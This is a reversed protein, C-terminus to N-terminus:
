ENNISPSYKLIDSINILIRDIMSRSIGTIRSIARNSITCKKRELNKCAKKYKEISYSKSCELVVKRSESINENNLLTEVSLKRVFYKDRQNRVELIKKANSSTAYELNIKSIYYRLLNEQIEIYEAIKTIMQEDLIYAIKCSLIFIAKRYNRKSQLSGTELLWKSLKEKMNDEEYNANHVREDVTKEIKNYHFMSNDEDINKTNENNTVENLITKEIADKLYLKRLFDRSHNKLCRCVFTFFSSKEKDYKALINEIAKPYLTSQFDHVLEEKMTIGFKQPHYYILIFLKDICKEKDNKTVYLTFLNNVMDSINNYQM